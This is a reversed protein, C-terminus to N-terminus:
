LFIEKFQQILPDPSTKPPIGSGGGQMSVLESELLTEIESVDLKSLAERKSEEVRELLKTKKSSEKEEIMAIRKEYDTLKPTLENYKVEIEKKSNLEEELLSIKETLQEKTLAESELAKRREASENNAKTKLEREKDLDAKLIKIQSEMEIFKSKWVDDAPLEKELFGGDYIEDENFKALLIEAQKEGYKEILKEKM